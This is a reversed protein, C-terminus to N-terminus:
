FERTSVDYFFLTHKQYTRLQMDRAQHPRLMLTLCYVRKVITALRMKAGWEGVRFVTPQLKLLPM